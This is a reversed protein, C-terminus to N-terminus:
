AEGGEADAAAREDYQHHAVGADWGAAWATALEISPVHEAAVTPYGTRLNLLWLTGSGSDWEWSMRSSHFTWKAGDSFQVAVIGV